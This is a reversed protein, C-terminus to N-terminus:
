THAFYFVRWRRCVEAWWLAVNLPRFLLAVASSGMLAFRPAPLVPAPNTTPFASGM